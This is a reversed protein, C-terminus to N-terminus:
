AISPYNEMDTFTAEFDGLGDAGDHNCSLSDRKCYNFTLTQQTGSPHTLTVKHELVYGHGTVSTWGSANGTQTFAEFPHVNSSGLFSTIRGSVNLTVNGDDTEVTVPTSQHRRREMVEVQTRGPADWSLSGVLTMDIYNAGGDTIRYTMTGTFAFPTTTNDLGAM